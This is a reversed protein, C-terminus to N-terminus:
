VENYTREYVMKNRQYWLESRLVLISVLWLDKVMRSRGKAEKNAALLNYHPIIHFIGALWHWARNAASCSWLVHELSEEEIQCVSCRSPLAIKFRSKVKDLTACSGRVFKWNQAELSPRVVSKWLLNAEELVPYRMRVLERASKVSFLGKLDPMWIKRDSCTHRRPLSELDVGASVPDHMHVGELQWQDLVIIESVRANRDLDPQQLVDELTETGYWVDYFLSTARGDGILSKTNCMVETHVWRIGPLISSKVGDLKLRGDRCTFKSELFRAWKKTSNKISWWLKMILAKNMNSLSTLGLGGERVPSCIKDYGVVFARALNSDGSWLFNRIVRECQKVFKVHWKYVAMNHIVYSSLVTKVLVVLDQFSLMKGKYVSLQDKLKDVVNSIHSYKVVVPMVKVGFIRQGSAQQYDCLLKVLNTLSMMNGTDFAQSIDLKLGLNGDKRKIHLENVLGSALSINEHINRGKMFAVQEESVFNDLVKGLRTALIKTFIKFFFNSLGIPRYKELSDGGRVKALLLTLSSNAGNPITKNNWCFIIAKALDQHILDWCHKYFCGSFGDPGSASDAGLAFVAAKIEELSPISDLMHREELSISNHEYEFLSDEIQTGVGNFKSEYYSVVYDRLQDPDIILSGDDTVLESITNVSRRTNITIHFYSTNSSGELIWKNRSKQKLMIHQQMRVEQVNQNSTDFPDEDSNRSAVEFKLKAQKLRANVNGFVQQNWLKMAEKLRKLKFPFIFYPNGYVLANWSTEVMRLFDPHTFWMKQIRFPARRPKSIIRRVGSQGNTWTFNFGLSDAEFLGNGEMWDSFENISSTLVDRGGKKEDNQLVCNFDGIVLWSTTSDVVSLQSWLRRRFVQTYSAHVCSIFVGETKVTIAHRTMNLVVLEEIDESWLIWLNGIFSSTSNHVAKKVFGALNLM